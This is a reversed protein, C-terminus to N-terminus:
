RWGIASPNSYKRPPTPHPAPPRGGPAEGPDGRWNAEEQHFAPVAPRTDLKAGCHRAAEDEQRAAASLLAKKVTAGGGGRLVISYKSLKRM